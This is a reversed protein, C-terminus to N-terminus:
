LGRALDVAHSSVYLHAKQKPRALMRGGTRVHTCWGHMVHQVRSVWVRVCVRASSGTRDRKQARNIAEQKGRVECTGVGRSKPVLGDDRRSAVGVRRAACAPQRQSERSLLQASRNQAYRESLPLLLTSGRAM